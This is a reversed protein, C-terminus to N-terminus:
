RPTRVGNPKGALMSKALAPIRGLRHFRVDAFGIERLLGSLTSWLCEDSHSERGTEYHLEAADM